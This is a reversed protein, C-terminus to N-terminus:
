PLTVEGREFRELWGRVVSCIGDVGAATASWEDEALLDLTGTIRARVVDPDREIWARLVLVGTRESVGSTM